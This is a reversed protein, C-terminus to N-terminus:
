TVEGTISGSPAHWILMGSASNISALSLQTCSEHHDPGVRTEASTGMLLHLAACVDRSSVFTYFCPINWCNM